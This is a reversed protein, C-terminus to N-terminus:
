RSATLIFFDRGDRRFSKVECPIKHDILYKQLFRAITRRSQIGYKEKDADTLALELYENPKVGNALDAKM